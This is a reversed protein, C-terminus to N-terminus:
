QRGIGWLENALDNGTLTDAGGGGIGNEIQAGYAISINYTMMDCNSFSGPALNIVCSYSWGSLDLTDIGASDYICVVPHTNITFDFVSVGANSNFGYVTNGTRTTTEAGYMAQITMVDYLMPTQAYYTRGDDAM